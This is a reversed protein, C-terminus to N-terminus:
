MLDPLSKCELAGAIWGFFDAVVRQGKLMRLIDSTDLGGKNGRDYKAFVDEFAQPRFRGETDYSGSDSGHKIKHVNSVHIRFFPDPIWSKCTPYSMAPHIIAMALFALPFSWGWAACGRYTDLPWIIGDNDSDWYVIHQQLVTQHQHDRTWNDETTGEPSEKSPAFNVRATGPDQLNNDKPYYPLREVTVPVQRIAINYPKESPFENISKGLSTVLQNADGNAFIDGNKRDPAVLEIASPM